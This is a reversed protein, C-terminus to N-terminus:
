AGYRRERRMRELEEIMRRIGDLERVFDEIMGLVREINEYSFDREEETSLEEGKELREYRDHLIAYFDQYILRVEEYEQLLRSRTLILDPPSHSVPTTTTNTIINNATNNNITNATTTTTSM